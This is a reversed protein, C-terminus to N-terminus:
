RLPRFQPEDTYKITVTRYKDMKITQDKYWPFDKHEKDKLVCWNNIANYVIKKAVIEEIIRTTKNKKKDVFTTVVYKPMAVKFSSKAKIKTKM